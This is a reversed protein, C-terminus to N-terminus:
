APSSAGRGHGRDEDEHDDGDLLCWREVVLALVTMALAGTGAIAAGLVAQSMAPADARTLAVAVIGALLGSFLAGGWAAAQAFMATRMARLPTMSTPKHARLRRVGIGSWLLVTAFGVFVIALYPTILLPGHGTGVLIASLLAGGGGSAVFVALVGLLPVPGM